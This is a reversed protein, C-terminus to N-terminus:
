KVEWSAAMVHSLAAEGPLVSDAASHHAPSSDRLVRRGRVHVGHELTEESPELCRKGFHARRRVTPWENLDFCGESFPEASANRAGSETGFINSRPRGPYGALGQRAPVTGAM